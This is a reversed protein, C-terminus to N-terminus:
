AGGASQTTINGGLELTNTGTIIDGSVAGTGLTIDNVKETTQGDVVTGITVTGSAVATASLFLDAINRHGLANQYTITLVSPDNASQSAVVTNGAGLLADLETQIAAALTAGGSGYSLNGSQRGLVSLAFTPAGTFTLTQIENGIAPNNTPGESGSPTAVPALGSAPQTQTTLNLAAAPTLALDGSYVLAFPGGAPGVVTVNGALGPISNLYTQVQGVTPLSNAAAPLASPLIGGGDVLRSFNGGVTGVVDSALTNVNTLALRNSFLVTFPGGTPGLVMVNGNLAPITSLHAEVAAATVPLGDVSTIQATLGGTVNTTGIPSADGLGNSFTIVYPGPIVPQTVHVNGALAPITNLSAQVEAATPSPGVPTATVGATASGGVLAVNGLAPNFNFTFTGTLPDQTVLVNNALNAGPISWLYDQVDSAVPFVAPTVPGVDATATGTVAAAIQPLNAGTANNNFTVTFPGGAPGSVLINGNLSGIGPLTITSLHALVDAQTPSIGPDVTLQTGVSGQIGGISLPATGTGSFNLTQEMDSFSLATPAPTGNYSLTFSGSTAAGGVKLTQILENVTIPATALVSNFSPTYTGSTTGLTLTQVEGAVSLPATAAVGNYSATFNGNGFANFTLSQLESGGGDTPVGAVTNISATVSSSRWTMAPLNYGALGGGFTIFFPGAGGGIVTATGSGGAINNLISNNIYNQVDSALPLPSQGTTSVTVLADPDDAGTRVVEILTSIDQAGKGNIFTITFPGGPNGSVAFNSINTLPDFLEPISQLAQTIDDATPSVQKLYDLTKTSTIGNFRLHFTSDTSGDGPNGSPTGAVGTANFTLTQIENQAPAYNIGSASGVVGGLALTFTGNTTGGLSLTQVENGNGETLTTVTGTAQSTGVGTVSFSPLNTNPLGTATINFTNPDSTTAVTFLGPMVATLAQDINQRTTLNNSSYVIPATTVSGLTITFTSGNDPQNNIVLQQVETAPASVSPGVGNFQFGISTPPNTTSPTITQVANGAGDRLTSITADGNSVAMPPLNANGLM